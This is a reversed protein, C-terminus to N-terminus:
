PIDGYPVHPGFGLYDILIRSINERGICLVFHENTENPKLINDLWDCRCHPFPVIMIMFMSKRSGRKASVVSYLIQLNYVFIMLVLMIICEIDIIGERHGLLCISVASYCCMM